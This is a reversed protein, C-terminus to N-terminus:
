WLVRHAQSVSTTVFSDVCSFM